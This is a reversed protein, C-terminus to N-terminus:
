CTQLKLNYSKAIQLFKKIIFLKEDYSVEKLNSMHRKVKEYM